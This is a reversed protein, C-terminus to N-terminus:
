PRARSKRSTLLIRSGQATEPKLLNGRDPFRVCATRGQRSPLSFNQRAFVRCKRGNTLPFGPPTCPEPSREPQPLSRFFSPQLVTRCESPIQVPVPLFHRNTFKLISFGHFFRCVLDLFLSNCFDLPLRRFKQVVYSQEAVHFKHFVPCNLLANPVVRVFAKEALSDIIRFKAQQFEM